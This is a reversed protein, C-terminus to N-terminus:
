LVYTNLYKFLCSYSSYLKFNATTGTTTLQKACDVLYKIKLHSTKDFSPIGTQIKIWQKFSEEEVTFSRDYHTLFITLERFQGSNAFLQQINSDNDVELEQTQLCKM